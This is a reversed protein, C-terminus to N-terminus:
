YYGHLQTVWLQKKVACRVEFPGEGAGKKTGRGPWGEFLLGGGWSGRVLFAGASAPALQFAFLSLCIFVVM